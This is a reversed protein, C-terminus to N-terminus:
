SHVKKLTAKGRAVVYKPIPQFVLPRGYQQGTTLAWTIFPKLLAAQPSTTRLIVYTYTCIPYAKAFRKSGPPNVISLENSQANFKRDAQAAAQIGALGPRAFKKARNQVSFFKLHNKLAYAIDAYGVAGPTRSIVGSVGSSGRAGVGTPWNVTTGRGVQSKWQRSVTNLYTTYNFSTGSSDSRYVPTIDTGPLDVGKNVAKIKPDDWKKIQGLYIGALIPGTIHLNNPLGPLNYMISTAGLAWPLEVCGNCTNFQDPTMPADSAGFDVTKNAIASIGGGSGIPNYSIKVGKAAEYKQQWAAILPAPFTAGAGKLEGANSRAQAGTTVSVAVATVAVVLISLVGLPRKRRTVFEKMVRELRREHNEFRLPTPPLSPAM